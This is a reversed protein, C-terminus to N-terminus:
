VPDATPTRKYVIRLSGSHQLPYSVYTACKVPNLRGRFPSEAEKRIRERRQFPPSGYTRSVCSQFTSSGPQFSSVSARGLILGRRTSGYSCCLLDRVKASYKRSTMSTHRAVTRSPVDDPCVVIVSLPVDETDGRRRPSFFDKTWPM